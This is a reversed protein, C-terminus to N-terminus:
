LFSISGRLAAAALTASRLKSACGSSTAGPSASTSRQRLSCASAHLRSGPIPATPTAPERLTRGASSVVYM